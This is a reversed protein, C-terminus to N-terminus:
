RPTGPRVREYWVFDQEITGGPGWEQRDRNHLISTQTGPIRTGSSLGMENYADYRYYNDSVRSVSIVDLSGITGNVANRSGTPYSSAYGMASLSLDIFHAKILIGAGEVLRPLLPGARNDITTKASYSSSYGTSAWEEKFQNVGSAHMIEQTLPVEPGFTRHEPGTETAWSVVLGLAQKTARDANPFFANVIVGPIDIEGGCWACHGTPDNYLIPNNNAYAYRDYGQVGDPVITDAQAM